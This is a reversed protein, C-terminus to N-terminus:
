YNHNNELLVLEEVWSKSKSFGLQLLLPECRLLPDYKSCALGPILLNNSKVLFGALEKGIPDSLHAFRLLVKYMEKFFM